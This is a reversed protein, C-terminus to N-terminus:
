AGELEFTFITGQEETSSCKLECNHLKIIEFALPLGYGTGVEGATGKRSVNSNKSFIKDTISSPMGVGNDEVTVKVKKNHAIAYIKIVGDIRSFKIANSVLNELVQYIRNEDAIVQINESDLNSIINIRKKNALPGLSNNIMENIKKFNMPAFNIKIKGSEIASLVLIDNILDLSNQACSKIVPVIEKHNKESHMLLQSLSLISGIPNRLDHAVIGVFERLKDNLSALHRTKVNVAHKLFMITFLLLIILTSILLIYYKYKSYLSIPVNIIKSDSPLDKLNVKFRVLQNYDFQPVFSTKPIITFDKVNAGKLIELAINSIEQGHTYGDTMYGGLTGLGNNMGWMGYIPIKSVKSMEKLDTSYSFYRGESDSHIALIIAVSRSSSSALTNKLEKYTVNNVVEYKINTNALITVLSNTLESGITSRDSLIYLKDMEPHLKLILEINKKLDHGEQIGTINNKGELFSNKYVNVGGFVIPTENFIEQGHKLLFQFAYDDTSIILDPTYRKKFKFSFFSTLENLYDPDNIFRRADLYEIFINEESIDQELKQKVSDTLEQTWKYQPHYSNIVLVKKNSLDQGLSLFSVISILLIKILIKQMFYKLMNKFFVNEHGHSRYNTFM